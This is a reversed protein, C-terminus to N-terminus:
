LSFTRQNERQHGVVARYICVYINVTQMFVITFVHLRIKLGGLLIFYFISLISSLSLVSILVNLGASLTM